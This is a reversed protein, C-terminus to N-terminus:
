ANGYGGRVNIFIGEGEKVRRYTSLADRFLLEADEVDWDKFLFRNVLPAWERMEEDSPEENGILVISSGEQAINMATKTINEKGVTSTDLLILDFHFDGGNHIPGLSYYSEFPVRFNKAIRALAQVFGQDKDVLLTTPAMIERPVIDLPNAIEWRKQQEHLASRTDPPSIISM